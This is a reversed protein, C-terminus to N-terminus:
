GHRKHDREIRFGARRLAALAAQAYHTCDSEASEGGPPLSYYTALLGDILASLLAQRDAETM